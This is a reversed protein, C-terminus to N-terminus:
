VERGPLLFDTYILKVGFDRRLKQVFNLDNLTFAAITLGHDNWLEATAPQQNLENGNITIIKVGSAQAFEVVNEPTWNPDQYLTYIVSKWPYLEMVWDLMEPHYIQIIFRDLVAPDHEKAYSIIQNFEASVHAEDTYKSNTVLYIDPYKSMIDIITRYTITHYQDNFLKSLFNNTTFAEDPRDQLNDRWQEEGHMAVTEGDDTMMFDIEFVRQGLQYNLLFAEYSNTYTEGMIGGLAHAIYPHENAWSYNFNYPPQNGINHTNQTIEPLNQATQNLNHIFFYSGITLLACCCIALLATLCSKPKHPPTNSPHDPAQARSPAGTSRPIKTNSHSTSNTQNM